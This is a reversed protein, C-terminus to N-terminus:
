CRNQECKKPPVTYYGTVVGMLLATLKFYCLTKVYIGNDYKIYQLTSGTFTLSVFVVHCALFVLTGIKKKINNLYSRPIFIVADPSLYGGSSCTNMGSM